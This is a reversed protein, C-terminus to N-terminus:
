RRWTWNWQETCVANLTFHPLSM